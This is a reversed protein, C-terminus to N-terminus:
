ESLVEVLQLHNGDHDVVSQLKVHGPIELVEGIMKAGKQLLENKAKILNQVSLTVVANSGAAIPDTDNQQAIGLMAGGEHGTLEAWGFEENFKTLKLGVVETYFAVAKKIDKVVIWSLDISKITMELRWLNQIRGFTYALLYLNNLFIGNRKGEFVSLTSFIIRM